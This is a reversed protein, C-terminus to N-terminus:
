IEYHGRRKLEWLRKLIEEDLRHLSEKIGSLNEEEIQLEDDLAKELLQYDKSRLYHRTSIFLQNDRFYLIGGPLALYEIEDTDYRFKAIGFNLCALMRTHNALLGFQGSSDEGTFATINEIKEYQTSSQLHLTFATMADGREYLM